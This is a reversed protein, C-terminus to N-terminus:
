EENQDKLGFKQCEYPVIKKAKPEIFMPNILWKEDLNAYAHCMIEPKNRNMVLHLDYADKLFFADTDSDGAAFSIPSRKQMQDRNRKMNFIVKNIWCRKGQRYTIIDQNGNEHFGCGQFNLTYKGAQDLTNRIGIIKDSSLGVHQGFAEVVPQPSASVVWVDVDHKQLDSILKQMQLYVRIYSPLTRSGVKETFYLPSNLQHHIMEEAIIKVEVPTRGALLSALWAYAPEMTDKHYSGKWAKGDLYISLITDTCKTDKSTQLPSMPLANSCFKELEKIAESSLWRSSKRWSSPRLILDKKLMWILLADGVDNKIVTNDWDFIAVPNTLQSTSHLYIQLLRENEPTWSSEPVMKSKNACSM